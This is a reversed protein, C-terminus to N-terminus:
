SRLANLRQLLTPHSYHLFVYAPHPELNSLNEVHLKILANGLSKGDNTDRAFADAEYENKRSLWNMGIGVLESIPSYLMFFTILALHIGPESAGLATSLAPENVVRSLVFLLIGINLTSLIMSQLIHRKKYHGVEHALVALVEEESMQSILTDFLVIRKRKGFGAFFANAKTSRKSGDMVMINGLPFGVSQSYQEIAQRLPGEQLPTLKNFLTIFFSTYLYQIGLSFLTIFAWFWIWFNPGITSILFILLAMIGSGLTGALLWGKLKDLIYTRWTTKNFGFREEVVFTNYLSLPIGLVESALGLIGFFLLALLYPNEVKTRLWADLWGFGGFLLMGLALGFSVTSALFGIRGKVLHYEQSKRYKDEDYFAKLRDPLEPKMQRLNMYELVRDVLFSFCLLGILITLITEPNM